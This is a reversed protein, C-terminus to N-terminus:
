VRHSNATAPQGDPVLPETNNEKVKCVVRGGNRLLVIPEIVENIRYSMGNTLDVKSMMLTLM